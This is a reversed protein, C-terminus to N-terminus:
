FGGYPSSYFDKKQVTARHIVNITNIEGIKSVLELAKRNAFQYEDDIVPKNTAERMRRWEDLAGSISEGEPEGEAENKKVSRINSQNPKVEEDSSVKGLSIEGISPIGATYRQNGHVDGFQEPYLVPLLDAHRSRTYRDLRLQNNDKWNCIHILLSDDDIIKVFGNRELEHLESLGKQIDGCAIVIVRYAEVFGDDDGEMGLEFYLHRAERSMRIFGAQQIISKAFMRRNAM